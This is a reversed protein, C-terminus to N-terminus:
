GGSGFGEARAREAWRSDPFEEMLHARYLTAAAPRKWRAYLRGVDYRHRSRVLRIEELSARAAEALAGEGVRDIVGQLSDRIRALRVESYPLDKEMALLEQALRLQASPADPHSFDRERVEGFAAAARDHRGARAHFEGLRMRADAAFGSFPAHRVCAELVEPLATDGHGLGRGPLEKEGRDMAESAMEYQARAADVIEPAYPRLEIYRELCHHTEALAGLRRAAQARVHWAGDLDPQRARCLRKARERVEEWPRAGREAEASQDRLLRMELSPDAVHVGCGASFLSALIVTALAQRRKM